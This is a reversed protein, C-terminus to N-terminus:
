HNSLYIDVPLIAHFSFIILWTFFATAFVTKTVFLGKYRQLLLLIIISLPIISLLTYFVDIQM